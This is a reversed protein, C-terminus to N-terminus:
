DIAGLILETANTSVDGVWLQDSGGQSHRSPDTVAATQHYRLRLRYPQESNAVFWDGMTGNGARWELKGKRLSLTVDLPIVLTRGPAVVRDDATRPLHSINSGFQWPVVDGSLSLLEPFISDYQSFRLPVATHNSIKLALHVEAGSNSRLAQIDVLPTPFVMSFTVGAADM